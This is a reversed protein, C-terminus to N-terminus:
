SNERYAHLIQDPLSNSAHEAREAAATAKKKLQYENILAPAVTWALVVLKVWMPLDAIFSMVVAFLFTAVYVYRFVKM